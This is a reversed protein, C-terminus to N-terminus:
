GGKMDYSFTLKEKMNSDITFKFSYIINPNFNAGIRNALGYDLAKRAIECMQTDGEMEYSIPTAASDLTVLCVKNKLKSRAKRDEIFSRKFQGGVGIEFIRAQHKIKSIEYSAMRQKYAEKEILKVFAADCKDLMPKLSQASGDLSFRILHPTEKYDEVEIILNDGGLLSPILDALYVDLIFAATGETSARSEVNVLPESDLRYRTKFIQDGLYKYKGLSFFAEISEYDSCRLSFSSQGDKGTVWATQVNKDTMPDLSSQYHWSQAMGQSSNTILIFFCCALLKMKFM